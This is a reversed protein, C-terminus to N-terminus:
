RKEFLAHVREVSGTANLIQLAISEPTGGEPIVMDFENERSDMRTETPHTLRDAEAGRELQTKESVQLRVTVIGFEKCWDLEGDNRLDTIIIGTNYIDPNRAALLKVWHRGDRQTFYEGIDQLVTRDKTAEDVGVGFVGCGDKLPRAFSDRKVRTYDALIAGVTDKGAKMKGSLAVALPLSTQYQANVESFTDALDIESSIDTVMDGTADYIPLGLSLALHVEARAGESWKWGYMVMLADAENVIFDFDERLYEKKQRGLGLTSEAPNFVITTPFRDRIYRATHIFHPYNYHAHGSMPGALYVKRMPEM